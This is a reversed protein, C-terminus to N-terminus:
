KQTSFHMAMIGTQIKCTNYALHRDKYKCKNMLFFIYQEM